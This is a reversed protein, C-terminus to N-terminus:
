QVCYAIVCRDSSGGVYGPVVRCTSYDLQYLFYSFDTESNSQQQEMSVLHM